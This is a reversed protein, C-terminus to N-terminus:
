EEKRYQVINEIRCDLVECLTNITQTTIPKGNRLRQVTDPLVGYHNILAYTSIKKEEITKWFPEYTMM